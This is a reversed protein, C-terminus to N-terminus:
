VSFRQSLVCQFIDGQGIHKKITRVGDAFAKRSMNSEIPRPKLEAISALPQARRLRQASRELRRQAADYLKRHSDRGQGPESRITLNIQATQFVHDFVIVEDYLGLAVWPHGLRDPLRAPLRELTRIWDYGFYGVWGGALGDVESVAKKSPKAILRSRIIQQLQDAPFETTRRGQRHVGGSDGLCIEETPNVGIFSYRGVSGGTEVSEFLFSSEARDGGLRLFVAAPTLLEAPIEVSLVALSEAKLRRQFESFQM